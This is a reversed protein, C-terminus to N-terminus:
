VLNRVLAAIAVALTGVFAATMMALAAPAGASTPLSASARGALRNSTGVAIQVVAATVLWPVALRVAAPILRAISALVGARTADLAPLARQSEVLARIVAVHGDIAVFVAAALVGFLLEYPGRPRGWAAIDALRGATAAVLLPVAALVGLAAGIALERAAIDISAASVAAVTAPTGTMFASWVGAGLALAAQAVPPIGGVITTLVVIAAIGRLAPVLLAVLGAFSM